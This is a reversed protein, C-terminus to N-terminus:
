PASKSLDSVPYPNMRPAPCLAGTVKVGYLVFLERVDTRLSGLSGLNWIERGSLDHMPIKSEWIRGTTALSRLIVSLLNRCKEVISLFGIGTCTKLKIQLVFVSAVILTVGTKKGVSM